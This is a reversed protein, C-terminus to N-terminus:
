SASVVDECASAIAAAALAAIIHKLLKIKLSMTTKVENEVERRTDV